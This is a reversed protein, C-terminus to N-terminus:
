IKEETSSSATYGEASSPVLPSVTFIGKDSIRMERMAGANREGSVSVGNRMRSMKAKSTRAHETAGEKLIAVYVFSAMTGLIFQTALKRIFKNKISSCFRHVLFIYRAYKRGRPSLLSESM